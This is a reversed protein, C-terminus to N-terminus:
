LGSMLEKGPLWAVDCPSKFLPRGGGGGDSCVRYSCVVWCKCAIKVEAIFSKYKFSETLSTV